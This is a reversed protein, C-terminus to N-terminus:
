PSGGSGGPDGAGGAGDAGAGGGGSGGPGGSGSSNGAGGSGGSGGGGHGSGGANGVGGGGGAAQASAFDPTVSSFQVPAAVLALAFLSTTGLLTLRNRLIKTMQAEQEINNSFLRFLDYFFRVSTDLFLPQGGNVM